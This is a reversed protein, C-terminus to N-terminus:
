VVGGLPNVGGVQADRNVHLVLTALVLCSHSRVLILATSCIKVTVSNPPANAITGADTWSRCVVRQSRVPQCLRPTIPLPQWFHSGGNQSDKSM